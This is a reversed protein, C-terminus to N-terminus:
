IGEGSTESVPAAIKRAAAPKKRAVKRKPKPPEIAKELRRLLKVAERRAQNSQQRWRKEGETELRGLQHSVDRLLRTWRRRADRQSKDIQRELRTLGRRVRSSFEKLNPPLDQEIRALADSARTRGRTTKKRTSKRAAMRRGEEHQGPGIM